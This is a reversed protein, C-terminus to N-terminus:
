DGDRVSVCLLRHVTPHAITYRRVFVPSFEGRRHGDDRGVGVAAYGPLGARLDDM